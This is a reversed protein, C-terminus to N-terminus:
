VREDVLLGLLEDIHHMIRLLEEPPIQRIVEETEADVIKIIIRKSPHDVEFSLHTNFMRIYRNLEDRVEELNRLGVKRTHVVDRDGDRGNQVQRTPVQSPLIETPEPVKIQEVKMDM